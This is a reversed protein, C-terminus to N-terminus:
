YNVYGCFVFWFVVCELLCWVCYNIEVVGVYIICMLGVCLCYWYWDVGFGFVVVVVVGNVVCIVCDCMGIYFGFVVYFCFEYGDFDCM